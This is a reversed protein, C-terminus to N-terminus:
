KIFSKSDKLSVCTLTLFVTMFVVIYIHSALQFTMVLNYLIGLSYFVISIITLCKNRKGIFGVIGTVLLFWASALMRTNGSIGGDSKLIALLFIFGIIINTISFNARVKPWSTPKHAKKGCHPCFNSSFETGCKSCKM